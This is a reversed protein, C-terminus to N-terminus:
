IIYVYEILNFHKQFYVESYYIICLKRRPLFPIDPFYMTYNYALDEQLKLIQIM